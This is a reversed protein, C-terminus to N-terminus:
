ITLLIPFDFQFVIRIHVMYLSHTYFSLSVHVIILYYQIPLSVLYYFNETEATIMNLQVVFDKVYYLHMTIRQIM